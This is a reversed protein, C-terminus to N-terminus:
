LRAYQGRYLSQIFKRRLRAFRERMAKSAPSMTMRCALLGAERVGPVTDVKTWGIIHVASRLPESRWQREMLFREETFYKM